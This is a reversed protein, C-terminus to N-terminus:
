VRDAYLREPPVFLELSILCLRIVYWEHAITSRRLHHHLGLEYIISDDIYPFFIGRRITHPTCTLFRL